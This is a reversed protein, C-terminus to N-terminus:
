HVTHCGGSAPTRLPRQWQSFCCQSLNLLNKLKRLSASLRWLAVNEGPGNIGGSNESVAVEQRGTRAEEDASILCCKWGPGKIQVRLDRWNWKLAMKNGQVGRIDRTSAALKLIYIKWWTRCKLKKKPTPHPSPLFPAHICFSEEIKVEFAIQAAEFPEEAM